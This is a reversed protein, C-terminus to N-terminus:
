SRYVDNPRGSEATAIWLEGGPGLDLADVWIDAVRGPDRAPRDATATTWTCGGDRSVRLGTFTTAFITGDATAAYKPDFQGGYGIAQECVWRFSCGDDRSVLLGFTSRVFISRADGPRFFIGSTVPPRGSASAPGALSALVALATTLAGQRM